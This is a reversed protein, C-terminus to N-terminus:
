DRMIRKLFADSQENLDNVLSNRFNQAQQVGELRGNRRDLIPKADRKDFIDNISDYFEKYEDREDTLTASAAALVSRVDNLM